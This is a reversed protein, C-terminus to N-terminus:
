DDEGFYTLVAKFGKDDLLLTYSYEKAFTKLENILYENDLFWALYQTPLKYETIYYNWLDEYTIYEVDYGYGEELMDLSETEKWADIIEVKIFHQLLCIFRSQIGLGEIGLNKIREPEFIGGNLFDTATITNM